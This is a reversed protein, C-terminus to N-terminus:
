RLWNAVGGLLLAMIWILLVATPKSFGRRVLRHSLHNTDGEYFPKGNRWRWFVVYVMDLLPVALVFLPTLVAWTQPHKASYYHPLIALVALLYGVLHSGADGLFVAAKPYNWPLFGALAGAATVGLLGVLYQDHGIAFAAFWGAGILGLGACLGNMNDMINVANLVTLIWLITVVYSFLVSDVFLTVRIGALATIAAIAFQGAFKPAAKLEYRDDLWGLITFATCGALIVVLEYGRRGFGHLLKRTMEADFFGLNLAVLGMLCPALLGGMVALGGALPIPSHHIKRHGPDDVQGTRECWYRWLPMSLLTTVLAGAGAVVLANYPFQIM